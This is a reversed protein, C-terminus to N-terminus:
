VSFLLTLDTLTNLRLLVVGTQPSLGTYCSMFLIHGSVNRVRSKIRHMNQINDHMEVVGGVWGAM